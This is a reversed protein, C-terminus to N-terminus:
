FLWFCASTIGNRPGDWIKVSFYHTDWEVDWGLNQYATGAWGPEDQDMGDQPLIKLKDRQGKTGPCHLFKKGKTGFDARDQGTPFRVCLVYITLSPIRKRGKM